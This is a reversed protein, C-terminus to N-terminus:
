PKGVKKLIERGGRSLIKGALMRGLEEFDGYSGRVQDAIVTKGDPSGVLGKLTLEDGHKKGYAAIPLRCGGGLGKLFAREAMIEM